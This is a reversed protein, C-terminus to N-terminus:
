QETETLQFSFAWLTEAERTLQVTGLAGYILRGDPDRYLHVPAPDSVLAALADPSHEDTVLV